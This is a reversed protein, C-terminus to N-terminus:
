CRRSPGHSSRDEAPGFRRQSEIGGAERAALAHGTAIIVVNDITDVTSPAIGRMMAPSHGSPRRSRQARHRTSRYGCTEESM